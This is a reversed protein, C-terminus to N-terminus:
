AGALVETLEALGGAEVGPPSKCEARLACRGPNEKAGCRLGRGNRQLFEIAFKVAMFRQNATERCLETMPLITIIAARVAASTRM